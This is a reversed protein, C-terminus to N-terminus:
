LLHVMTLLCTRSPRLTLLPDESSCPEPATVGTLNTRDSHLRERRTQRRNNQRGPTKSTTAGSQTM